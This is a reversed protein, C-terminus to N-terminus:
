AKKGSLRNHAERIIADVKNQIEKDLPQIEQREIIKKAKESALDELSRSGNRIWADYLQRKLVTPIFHEKRLHDNTHKETLYTGGPKVKHVLDLALTTDNVEVLRTVRHFMQVIESDIVLQEFSLTKGDELCGFGEIIDANAFPLLGCFSKELCAQAGLENATNYGGGGMSPLDHYRGFQGMAGSMIGHEVAGGARRATKMDFPAVSGGYIFSAGPCSSEILVLGGLVEANCVVLSGALTVPGTAGPMCCTIIGVPVGVKAYEVAAEAANGDIMMPSIPCTISSILPNKRLEDMGGSISAAIKIVYPAVHPDDGSEFQVHKENVTLATKIDFLNRLHIPVDNSTVTPYFIHYSDLANAIKAANVIDDNVAPRRERTNLDITHTGTGYSVVHAHRGDLAINYKPNRAGLRVISRGKKLSEQVLYSPILVIQDSHDVTCGMGELTKLCKESTIKIGTRELLDLSADNITDLDNRSLVPFTNPARPFGYSM